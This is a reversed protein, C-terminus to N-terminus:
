IDRGGNAAKAFDIVNQFKEKDFNEVISMAAEAQKPLDHILSSILSAISRNYKFQNETLEILYRYLTNYEDEPINTLVQDLIGNSKLQNYLKTLDEKQKDTFNINTYLFVLYLHFLMDLKLPNCIGNEFAENAVISILDYKDEIPLYQSVEIDIDNFKFTKVENNIKLKLNSYSVKAM